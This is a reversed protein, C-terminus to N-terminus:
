AALVAALREGTEDQLAADQARRLVEAADGRGALAPLRDLIATVNRLGREFTDSYGKLLRQCRVLELAAAPETGALAVVADLWREIRRQEEQYRLSAPRIPRLLAIARLAVFWGLSTTEVHRGSRFLPTLLRTALRNSRILRGLGAPVTEYFEQLRPHMFETVGAVDDAGIGLDLRVRAFRSERTKLDAVRITDDYAMWLALHRAAEATLRWDAAASDTMVVRQLRDLYLEAYRADQYDMLRQVGLTAHRWAPRPLETQVRAALARGAATTPEPLDPAPDPAPGTVPGGAAEFGAAFGRLNAEVAVGSGRIAAEFASREFPLAGSRALGGLMVASILCGSQAAVADMDFGVFRGARAEVAELVREGNGRGDGMAMKESIAYIRHTSGIVTTRGSSVFGRVLARGIEMLESAVVIDVDGPVPSLAMLAPGRSAAGAAPPAIEVYYVTTGTRQAVGPVSTGQTQYGRDGAVQLLWDAFVGGGQGGLALIAISIRGGAAPAM